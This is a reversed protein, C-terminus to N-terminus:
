NSVKAVTKIHVTNSNKHTARIMYTGNKHNKLDIDITNLGANVTYTVADSIQGLVDIVEIQIEENVDATFQYKVISSTPNPYFKYKTNASKLNNLEIVNSYEGNNDYDVQQLRYYNIGPYPQMDDFEYNKLSSTTGSGAVEGIKKFNIGDFSSEVNFHSNNNESLTSWYLHNYKERGEGNFDKYTVGLFVSTRLYVAGSGGSFSSIGTMEAYNIGNPTTGILTQTPHITADYIPALYNGSVNKFWYFGMPNAYRYTYGCAPYTAMWTAAANEIATREAPQYYFRVDYPAVTAGGGMDLNWSRRMEFKEDSFCNPSAIGPSQYYTGNVNIRAVPYGAPAGSINGKVSYIIDSGVYFHNWGNDDTCYNSSTTGNAAYTYTRVNMVVPFDPTAASCGGQRRVYVTTTAAASYTISSGTGLLTGTGGPGTYWNISSGTGATGGSAALTISTNPCLPSGVPVSTISTSGPTIVFNVATRCTLDNSCAVYYTYTGATNTNALGSGAVGVPNFPTGTGIASGGSAATFWNITGPGGGTGSNITGGAPGTYTWSYTDTNLTGYSCSILYYTVGPVLSVSIQPDAGCLPASDDNGLVFNTCPSAASFSNQYIFGYGDIGPYCGDFTYTGAMSVTFAYSDYYTTTGSTSCPSTGYPRVFTPDASTLAGSNFTAGQAVAPGSTNPCTYSSSLSGSGGVCITPSTATVVGIKFDVGSRCSPNGSCAVYYTTTGPTNTNALGSGAVGVPNFATGTGLASGGSASAYWQLTGPTGTTLTAGAPGSYTWTYTDTSSPSYSTSILYYTVGPTLTAILQPDASCTAYSDDNGVVFNAPVSCPSAPNFANQFLMGYADITPFCGNFTYSGATSVTFAFVDYYFTSSGYASCITSVRDWTPDSTTLAGMNFNSGQSISTSSTVPCGYTSTLTGSAGQCINVSTAPVSGPNITITGMGTCTGVNGTVTYTTSSSPTITTTQGTSGTSWNYNTAAGATLTATTGACVSAPNSTISIPVNTLMSVTIVRKRYM